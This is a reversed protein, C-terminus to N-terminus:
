MASEKCVVSCFIAFDERTLSLALFGGSVCQPNRWTSFQLGCRLIAKSAEQCGRHLHAVGGSSQRVSLRAPAQCMYSVIETLRCRYLTLWRCGEGCVQTSKSSSAATVYHEPSCRGVRFRWRYAGWPCGLKSTRSYLVASPQAKLYLLVTVCVPSSASQMLLADRRQLTTHSPRTCTGSVRWTHHNPM